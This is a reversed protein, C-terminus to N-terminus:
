DRQREVDAIWAEVMEPLEAQEDNNLRGLDRELEAIIKHLTRFREKGRATFHFKVYEPLEVAADIWGALFFRNILAETVRKDDDPLSERLIFKDKAM